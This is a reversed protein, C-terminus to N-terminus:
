RFRYHRVLRDIVRSPNQLVGSLRTDSGARSMSEAISVIQNALSAQTWRGTGVLCQGNMVRRKYTSMGKGLDFRQAGAAAASQIIEYLLILGPSYRAYSESYAPFWYHFVTGTSMGFHAAVLEDGAYLCSLVGRLDSTPARWLHRLLEITWKYEFYDTVGTARCQASKWRMVAEFVDEDSSHEVFRVSGYQEELKERKRQSEKLQKRGRADLGDIYADFGDNVYVVPSPDWAIPVSEFGRQGEVLHDFCFRRIDCQAFLEAASWDQDPAAVLGHFDSFGLALPRAIKLPSRHFPLFGFPKGDVEILAVRVDKRVAAVARMFEAAFFPSALVSNSTRLREWQVTLDDCVEDSRLVHVQM